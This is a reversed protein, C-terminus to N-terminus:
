NLMFSSPFTYAKRAEQLFGKSIQMLRFFSPEQSVNKANQNGYTFQNQASDAVQLNNPNLMQQMQNQQYQRNKAQYPTM